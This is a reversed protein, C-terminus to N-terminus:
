NGDNKEKAIEKCKDLIINKIDNISLYKANTKFLEYEEDTMSISFGFKNMSEELIIETGDYNGSMYDEYLTENPNEDLNKCFRDLMHKVDEKVWNRYGHINNKLFECTEKIYEIAKNKDNFEKELNYGMYSDYYDMGIPVYSFGFDGDTKFCLKFTYKM